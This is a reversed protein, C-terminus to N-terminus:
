DDDTTVVVADCDPRNQLIDEYRAITEQLRRETRDLEATLSAVQTELALVQLRYCAMLGRIGHRRAPTVRPYEADTRSPPLWEVSTQGETNSELM